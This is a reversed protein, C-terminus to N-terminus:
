LEVFDAKMVEECAKALLAWVPQRRAHGRVVCEGLRAKAGTLKNPGETACVLYDSLDALESNNIICMMAISRRMPEYGGPILEITVRLM